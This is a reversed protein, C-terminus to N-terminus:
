KKMLEEQRRGIVVNIDHICNMCYVFRKQPIVKLHQKINEIINDDCDILLESYVIGIENLYNCLGISDISTGNTTLIKWVVNLYYSLLQELTNNTSTTPMVLLNTPLSENGSVEIPEDISPISQITTRM